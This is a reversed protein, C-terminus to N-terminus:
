HKKDSCENDSNDNSSFINDTIGQPVLINQFMNEYHFPLRDRRVPNIFTEVVDEQITISSQRVRSNAIPYYFQEIQQTNAEDFLEYNVM